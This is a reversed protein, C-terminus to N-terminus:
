SAGGAAGSDDAGDGCGDDDLDPDDRDDNPGADTPWTRPEVPEVDLPGPRRPWWSAFQLTDNTPDHM